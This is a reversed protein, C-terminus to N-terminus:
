EINWNIPSINKSILYKNTESFHQSGLFGRYASFPSPHTTQLILHKKSDILNKKSQAFAGWLLFVLDKKEESIKQIVLDTYKSWIKQHINPTSDEVTLTANLLLVGQKAWSTLNGHLPIKIKLDSSLEKYINKLSPPVRVGKQVSFALGHAQGYQHYPDQGLIIVKTNKISCQNLAEFINEQPPYVKKEQYINKIFTKLEQFYESNEPSSNQTILKEWDKINQTM